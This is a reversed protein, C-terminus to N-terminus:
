SYHLSVSSITLFLQDLFYKKSNMARSVQNHIGILCRFLSEPVLNCDSKQNEQFVSLCKKLHNRIQVFVFDLHKQRITVKLFTCFTHFFREPLKSVSLSFLVFLNTAWNQKATVEFIDQNADNPIYPTGSGLQAWLTRLFLVNQVYKTDSPM